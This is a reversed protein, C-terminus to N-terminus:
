SRPVEDALTFRIHAGGEARNEAFADGGHARAIRRVLYLGLGVGHREDPTQGHGRAFPEFVRPLDAADFGSGDDEVSFVTQSSERSARVRVQAGGHKRANDLLIALARSLLTADAYVSRAGDDIEVGIAGGAREVCERVIDRTDLARKVLAGAEIRTGALLEGVLADMDAVERELKAVLQADAGGDQLMALLVRVRALPTRLEHSAAGLLEQQNKVQAEIRAAMDNFAAALGGIEEPGHRPLRVRSELKGAGLESAVRALERLPQVIRRAAVGSLTWLVNGALFLCLLRLWSWTGHGAAARFLGFVALSVLMAALIAFGFGVFIQRQLRRPGRWRARWHLRHHLHHFGPAGPWNDDHDWRERDWRERWRRRREDPSV